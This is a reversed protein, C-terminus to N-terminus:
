HKEGVEWGRTDASFPNAQKNKTNKKECYGMSLKKRAIKFSDSTKNLDILNGVIGM